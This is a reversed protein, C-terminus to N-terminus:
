LRYLLNYAMSKDFFKGWNVKEGDKQIELKLVQRYYTDNTALMQVLDWVDAAVDKEASDLLKM